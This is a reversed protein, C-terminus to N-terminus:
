KKGGGVSREDLEWRADWEIRQAMACNLLWDTKVIRASLGQKEAMKRFTAWVKVDDDATGSVLYVFDTEDDGGQNQSELGADPDELVKLRRRPLQM